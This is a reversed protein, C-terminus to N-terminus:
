VALSGEKVDAPVISFWRKAEAKTVLERYHRFLIKVDHGAELATQNANQTAALRYSVFSHRLANRPMKWVEQAEPSLTECVRRGLRELAHPLGALEVVKGAKKAYQRLWAAANEPLPALRRAVTKAKSAKM